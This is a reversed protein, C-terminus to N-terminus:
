VQTEHRDLECAGLVDCRCLLDCRGLLASFCVKDGVDPLQGEFAGAGAFPVEAAIAFLHDELAFALRAVGEVLDIEHVAFRSVDLSDRGAM